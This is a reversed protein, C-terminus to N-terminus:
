NDTVHIINQTHSVLLVIFIYVHNLTHFITLICEEQPLHYHGYMFIILILFQVQYYWIPLMLQLLPKIVILLIMQKCKKVTFLNGNLWKCNKEARDSPVPEQNQIQSSVFTSTDNNTLTFHTVFPGDTAAQQILVKM